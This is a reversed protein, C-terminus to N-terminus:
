QIAIKFMTCSRTLNFFVFNDASQLHQRHGKWADEYPSRTEEYFDSETIKTIIMTENKESYWVYRHIRFLM